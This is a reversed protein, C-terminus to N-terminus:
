PLYETATAAELSAVATRYAALLSLREGEVALLTRGADLLELMSAAGKQHQVEILDRARRARSRLRGEMRELQARASVFAAYASQVDAALQAELKGRQAAQARLDAEARAVEGEQQYLVPLPLSLGVTLTPPAISDSSNGQQAYGVNFAPDPWRQRRALQLAAAAREEQRAAALRDPRASRAVQLLSDPTAAALPAPVPCDLGRPDLAVSPGIGRQGLFLGLAARASALQAAAQDRLQEAELEAVEARAVDAESVAGLAFRREVLGRTRAASGRAEEALLGQAQALLAQAWTTKLSLELTRQADARGLTAAQLAARAVEQRLARKRTFLADSIAGQDSLGVAFGTASCGACRSADYGPSHALGVSLSPNPSAGASLLDGQAAALQADALLLDFGRERFLRLAEARTLVEAAGTAAAATSSSAEDAAPAPLSCVLLVLLLDAASRM